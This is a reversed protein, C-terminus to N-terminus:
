ILLIPHMSGRRPITLLIIYIYILIMYYAREELAAGFVPLLRTPININARKLDWLSRALMKGIRWSLLPRLRFRMSWKAQKTTCNEPMDMAYGYNDTAQLQCSVRGFGELDRWLQLQLGSHQHRPEWIRTMSLTAEGDLLFEICLACFVDIM